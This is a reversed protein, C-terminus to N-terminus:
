QHTQPVKAQLREGRRSWLGTVAAAVRWGRWGRRQRDMRLWEAVHQGRETLISKYTCWREFMDKKCMLNTIQVTKKQWVNFFYQKRSKRKRYSHDVSMDVLYKVFRMANCRALKTTYTFITWQDFSKQSLRYCKKNWRSWRQLYKKLKRRRTHYLLSYLSLIGYKQCKLSQVGCTVVYKWALFVSKLLTKFKARYRFQNAFHLHIAYEMKVRWTVFYVRLISSKYIRKLVNVTYAVMQKINGVLRRQGHRDLRYFGLSHTTNSEHKLSVGCDAPQSLRAWHQAAPVSCDLAHPQTQEAHEKPFHRRHVRSIRRANTRRPQVSDHPLDNLSLSLLPPILCHTSKSSYNGSSVNDM